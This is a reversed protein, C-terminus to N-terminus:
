FFFTTSWVLKLAGKTTLPLLRSLIILLLWRARAKLVWIHVQTCVPHIVDCYL